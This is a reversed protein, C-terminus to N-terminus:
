RSALEELVGADMVHAGDFRVVHFPVGAAHLREGDRQVIKDTVYPDARGAVLTVGAACLREAVSADDLDLDPPVEGGWLVLGRVPAAGRAVWRAATAAGQSFGLVHVEAGVRGTDRCVAAYVADLYAVYDTIEALRDERTMWSAGVARTSRDVYYRSLAEPAVLLRTGDNLRAGSELFAAALQGYGHLLMWLEGTDPGVTWYRAGRAVSLHHENM